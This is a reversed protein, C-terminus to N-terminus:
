RLLIEVNKESRRLREAVLNVVGQNFRAALLPNNLLTRAAAGADQLYSPVPGFGQGLARANNLFQQFPMAGPNAPNMGQGFGWSGALALVALSALGLVGFRLQSSSM